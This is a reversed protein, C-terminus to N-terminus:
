DPWRRGGWAMPRGPPSFPGSIPPNCNGWRRWIPRAGLHGLLFTTFASVDRAYGDLTHPSSRKEGALWDRWQGIAAALDPRAAFHIPAPM